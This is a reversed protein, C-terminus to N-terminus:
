QYEPIKSIKYIIYGFIILWLCTFIIESQNRMAENPSKNLIKYINNIAGYHNIDELFHRELRILVCGIPTGGGYYSNISHIFICSFIILILNRQTPELYILFFLAIIVYIIHFITIGYGIAKKNNSFREIFTILKTMREKKKEKDYSITFM